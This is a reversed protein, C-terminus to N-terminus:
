ADMADPDLDRLDAEKIRITQITRVGIDHEIMLRVLRPGDILAIRAAGNGRPLAKRAAATFTSSTVFVGKAAGANTLAGVFERVAAPSVASDERYRKAQVYIRGLGLKDENVIGDVGEDGAGGQRLSASGYDMAELLRVVLREFAAPHLLRVAELLDRELIGDIERVVDDLREAPTPVDFARSPVAGDATACATDRNSRGLRRMIADAADKPTAALLERGFETLAYAGDAAKRTAGAPGSYRLVFAIRNGFVTQGNGLLQAREEPSLEYRDALRRRLGAPRGNGQGIEVLVPLVLDKIDPIAM